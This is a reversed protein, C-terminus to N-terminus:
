AAGGRARISMERISTLVSVLTNACDTYGAQRVAAAYGQVYDAAEDFTKAREEDRATAIAESVADELRERYLPMEIGSAVLATRAAEMDAKTPKTM